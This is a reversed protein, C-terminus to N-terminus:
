PEHDVVRILEANANRILGMEAGAGASQGSSVTVAEQWQGQGRGVAM